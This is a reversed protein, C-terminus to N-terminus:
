RPDDSGHGDAPPVEVDPHNPDLPEPAIAGGGPVAAGRGFDTKGSPVEPPRLKLRWAIYAIVAAYIIATYVFLAATGFREMGSSAILPGIISGSSSTLFLASATEVVTGKPARDYAHAASISYIPAIMVGYFGALVFWGWTPVPLFALLLAFFAAGSLLAALVLRRDIRDSYRGVPWQGIAGATTAITMFVAADRASLGHGVAAVTGLSWYAGNALGSGFVGILGVPSNRYLAM